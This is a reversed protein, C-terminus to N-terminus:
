RRVVAIKGTSVQNGNEAYAVVIYVGSGVAKGIADTGDWFARGGGQANFQKIVAGTVTLIKISTNEALGRIAVSSNEPLIFPNPAIELSGLQEVTAIAPIELSSLGKGTGFYAIGRKDDFAISLVNNDVLKGNTNTVDYQALLSTGDPSLVMVGQKTGIWKNNLPDVAIANIFQDRVAGLFVRSVRATPYRPEAIITIGLDTGVWLSGEKDEGICTVAASTIGDALTIEGWRDDALGPIPESENFYAFRHPDPVFGPLSNSFWKTGNRDITVGLIFNYSNSLNARTSDWKGDPKM